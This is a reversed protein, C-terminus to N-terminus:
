VQPIAENLRGLQELAQQLLVYTKPSAPGNAPLRGIKTATRALTVLVEPIAAEPISSVRAGRYNTLISQIAKPLRAHDPSGDECLYPLSWTRPNNADGVYAFCWHPLRYKPHLLANGATLVSRISENSGALLQIQQSGPLPQSERYLGDVSLWWLELPVFGSSIDVFLRQRSGGPVLDTAYLMAGDTIAICKVKQEDAYRQAQVLAIEVSRSNWVLSGPRKVEIILCKIGLRTLVIDAYGVQNNVDTLKWDLVSTLLDEIISEAVKEPASGNRELQFLRDLRKATFSPWSELIRQQVRQYSALSEVTM